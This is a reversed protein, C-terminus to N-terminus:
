ADADSKIARQTIEALYPRLLTALSAAITESTFDHTMRGNELAIRFGKTVTGDGRVTVGQSAAEGLKAKVAAVVADRDTDSVIAEVSQGERSYADVVKAVLAGLQDGANAADVGDSLLGQFLADLSNGVSLVMDRAAQELARQGRAELQTAEQRAAEIERDRTANAEKIIAAAETKAESVIREAEQDAREVGDKQIRDLLNQLDGSM